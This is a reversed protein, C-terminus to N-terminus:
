KNIPLLLFCVERGLLQTYGNDPDFAIEMYKQGQGNTGTFQIKGEVEESNHKKIITM